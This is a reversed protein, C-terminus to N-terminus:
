SRVKFSNLFQKSLQEPSISIVLYVRKDVTYIHGTGNKLQDFGFGTTFVFEKVSSNQVFIDKESTIKGGLGKVLETPLIRTFLETNEASPADLYTIMFIGEGPSNATYVYTGGKNQVDPKGPFIASFRGTKSQFDQWSNLNSSEQAIEIVKVNNRQDGRSPAASFCITLAILISLKTKNLQHM